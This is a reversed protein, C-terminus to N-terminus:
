QLFIGGRRTPDQRRLIARGDKHAMRECPRDDTFRTVLGDDRSQDVHRSACGVCTFIESRECRLKWPRGRTCSHYLRVSIKPQALLAKELIEGTVQRGGPRAREVGDLPSTGVRQDGCPSRLSSPPHLRSEILYRRLIPRDIRLELSKQGLAHAGRRDFECRTM